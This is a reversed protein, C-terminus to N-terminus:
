QSSEEPHSSIGGIFIVRVPLVAILLVIVAVKSGPYRVASKLMAAAWSSMKVISLAWHPHIGIKRCQKPRAERLAKLFALRWSCHVLEDPTVPVPLPDPCPSCLERGTPRHMGLADARRKLLASIRTKSAVPTLLIPVGKRQPFSGKIQL